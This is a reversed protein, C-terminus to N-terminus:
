YQPQHQKVDKNAVHVTPNLAGEALKGIVGLQTTRDVHQLSPIGDLPVKVPKLPPGMCAEHLEVLGLALDQVPTLTIGLVFVPQASFPNFASRLLLVQPWQNYLFSLM